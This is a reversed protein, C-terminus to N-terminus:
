GCIYGSEVLLLSRCTSACTTCLIRVYYIWYMACYQVTVWIIMSAIIILLNKACITLLIACHLNIVRLYFIYTYVFLCYMYGTVEHRPCPRCLLHFYFCNEFLKLLYNIICWAFPIIVVYYFCLVAILKPYCFRCAHTKRPPHSFVEDNDGSFAM